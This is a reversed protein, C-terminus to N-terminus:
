DEIDVESGFTELLKLIVNKLAPLNEYSHDFKKIEGKQEISEQTARTKSRVLM